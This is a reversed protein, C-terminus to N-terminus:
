AVVPPPAAATVLLRQLIATDDIEFDGDDGLVTEVAVCAAHEVGALRGDLRAAQAVDGQLAHLDADHFDTGTGVQAIQAVGDLTVGFRVAIADNAFEASVADASFEMF